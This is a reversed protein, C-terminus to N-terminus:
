SPVKRTQRKERMAATGSLLFTGNASPWVGRDVERQFLATVDIQGDAYNSLNAPLGLRLRWNLIRQRLWTEIKRKVDRM